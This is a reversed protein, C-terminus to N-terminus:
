HRDKTDAAAKLLELVQQKAEPGTVAAMAQNFLKVKKDHESLLQELKLSEAIGPEGGNKYKEDLAQLLSFYDDKSACMAQYAQWVAETEPSLKETVSASMPFPTSGATEPLRNM